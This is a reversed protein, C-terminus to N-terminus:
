ESCWVHLLKKFLLAIFFNIQKGFFYFIRSKKSPGYMKIQKKSNDMDSVLPRIFFKYM